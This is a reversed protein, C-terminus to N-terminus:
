SFLPIARALAKLRGLPVSDIVFIQVQTTDDLVYLFRNPAAVYTYAGSKIGAIKTIAHTKALSAEIALFTRKSAPLYNITAENAARGSNGYYSCILASASPRHPTVHAADIGLKADVIGVSVVGCGSPIAGAQSSALFATGVLFGPIVLTMAVPKVLRKIV